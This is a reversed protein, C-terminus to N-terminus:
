DHEYEDVRVGNKTLFVQVHDGFVIEFDSKKISKIVSCAAEFDAVIRAYAEAGGVRAIKADIEAIEAKQQELQVPGRPRRHRDRRPDADDM